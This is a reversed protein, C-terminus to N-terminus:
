ELCGLVGAVVGLPHRTGRVGAEVGGRGETKSWVGLPLWAARVSILLLLVDAVGGAIVLPSPVGTM